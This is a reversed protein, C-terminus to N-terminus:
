VRGAGGLHCAASVCCPPAQAGSKKAGLAPDVGAAAGAMGAVEGTTHDGMRVGDMITAVSIDMTTGASIGMITGGTTAM